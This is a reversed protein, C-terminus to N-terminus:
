AGPVRLQGDPLPQQRPRRTVAHGFVRFLGDELDISPAVSATIDEDHLVELALAPVSARFANIPHGGGVVRIKGGGRFGPAHFCYAILITGGPGVLDRAKGLATDLPIYQFSESFLCVDVRGSPAADEFRVLHVKAGPANARCHAALLPSPVVIEVEHGLKRATEGAGGGIDLIRLPGRSPARLAQRYIPGAGQRPERGVDRDRGPPRSPPKRREVAM